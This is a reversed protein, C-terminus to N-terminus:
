QCNSDVYVATSVAASQTSVEGSATYTARGTSDVPKGNPGITVDTLLNSSGQLANRLPGSAAQAATVARNAFSSGLISGSYGDRFSAFGGSRVRQDQGIVLRGNGGLTTQTNVNQQRWVQQGNDYLVLAGNSSQWSLTLRHGQGNDVNLGTNFETGMLTIHLSQPNWLSFGNGAVSTAYSLLTAGPANSAQMHDAAVVVEASFAPLNGNTNLNGTSAVYGNAASGFHM